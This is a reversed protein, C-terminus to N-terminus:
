THMGGECFYEHAALRSYHCQSMESYDVMSTKLFEQKETSNIKVLFTATILEYKKISKHRKYLIFNSSNLFLTVLM